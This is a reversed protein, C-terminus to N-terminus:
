SAGGRISLALVQAYMAVASRIRTSSKGGHRTWGAQPVELIRVGRRRALGLFEADLTDGDSRVTVRRWVDSHFVKPTGNVDRCGVGLLFQCELNYILSAFERVFHGRAHRQVKAIADKRGGLVGFLSVVQRPDTRASNTYCWFEGRAASLGAKVSRGWGGLSSELARVRPDREAQERCIRPSDDTCANAVLIVEASVAKERFVELYRGVVGGIYDAQNRVPLVVSLAPVSM